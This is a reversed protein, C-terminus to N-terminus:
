CARADFCEDSNSGCARISPMWLKRSLFDM